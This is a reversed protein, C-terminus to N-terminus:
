YVTKLNLIRVWCSLIIKPRWGPPASTSMSCICLLLRGGTTNRRLVRVQFCIHFPPVHAYEARGLEPVNVFNWRHDCLSFVAAFSRRQHLRRVSDFVLVDSNLCPCRLLLLTRAARKLSRTGELATLLVSFDEDESCLSKLILIFCSDCQHFVDFTKLICWVSPCKLGFGTLVLKFHATEFGVFLCLRLLVRRVRGVPAASWCHQVSRGGPWPTM